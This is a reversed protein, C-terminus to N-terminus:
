EDTNGHQVEADAHEGDRAVDVPLPHAAPYSGGELGGEHKKIRTSNASVILIVPPASRIPWSSRLHGPLGATEAAAILKGATTM